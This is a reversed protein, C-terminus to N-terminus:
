AGEALVLCFGGPTVLLSVLPRGTVNHAASLIERGGSIQSAMLFGHMRVLTGTRRLHKCTLLRLALVTRPPFVMEFPMSRAM